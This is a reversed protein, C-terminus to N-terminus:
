GRQLDGAHQTLNNSVLSQLVNCMLKGSLGRDFMTGPRDRDSRKVTGAIDYGLICPPPLGPGPAMLGTVLM